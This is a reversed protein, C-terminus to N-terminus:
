IQGAIRKGALIPSIDQPEYNVYAFKIGNMAIHGPFYEIIKEDNRCHPTCKLEATEEIFFNMAPNCSPLVKQFSDFIVDTAQARAM